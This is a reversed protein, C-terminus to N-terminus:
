RLASRLATLAVKALKPGYRKAAMIAGQTAVAKGVAVGPYNSPNVNGGNAGYSHSGVQNAVNTAPPPPPQYTM